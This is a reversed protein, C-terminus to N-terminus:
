AQPICELLVKEGHGGVWFRMTPYKAELYEAFAIPDGPNNDFMDYHGPVVLRTKVIGALDAAEQYTMNGICNQRYRKGDRGNIPLFMVDIRGWKQLRSVLGEYICCDGSHYVVCGDSEIVYGLYPYSGTKPDRDLFEHAAAVGTIKVGRDDMSTGDNLGIFRERPIDLDRSLSDVLLAPVVFKAQPSSVSVQHWAKRNVHDEHDHTGLIYEAFTLEKPSLLPPVKRDVHDSLFADVVFVASRSKVIFGLQGLWWFAISGREVKCSAVSSALEAGKTVAEERWRGKL